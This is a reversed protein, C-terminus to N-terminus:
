TWLYPRVAICLHLYKQKEIEIKTEIEIQKRVVNNYDLVDERKEFYKDILSWDVFKLEEISKPSNSEDMEMKFFGVKDDIEVLKMEGDIKNKHIFDTLYELDDQLEVYKVTYWEYIEKIIDMIYKGEYEPFVVIENEYEGYKRGVDEGFDDVYWCIHKEPNYEEIFRKILIMNAEFMLTDPEAYEYPKISKIKILDYRHFLFNNLDYAPYIWNRFFRCFSYWGVKCLFKDWANDYVNIM